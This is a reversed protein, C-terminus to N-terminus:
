DPGKSARHLNEAMREVTPADFILAVPLKHGLDQEIRALIRFASLSHGGLEFFDDRIGVPRVGLVEEWIRALRREMENRPAVPEMAQAQALTPAPLARHDMKGSSTLPLDDVLVFAAPIMYSPLQEELFRRLSMMDLAGPNQSTVYAVLGRGGPADDRITAFAQSIAPHKLLSAEIEAPEIRFGRIKVQRDARGVFEINGDSLYRGLDGTRYLRDGKAGTYPNTLFREATLAEDGLYGLALHSSRIYIEGLEGIGALKREKNLVLLQVGTMGRGLPYVAAQSEDRVQPVVYYGRSGKTETTGYTNICTVEPALRHLPAVDGPSLRDGVFVAGRLAPLHCDATETLIHSMAPTLQVFTIAQGALWQALRGPARIDEDGPIYLTAGLWVPLFLEQQLPSNALGFLLSFRDGATLQLVDECWPMFATLQGHCGLVGKPQGTSGSTFMVCALADPGIGVEPDQDSYGALLTDSEAALGQPLVLQVAFSQTELFEKLLDGPEDARELQLWGSPTAQSLQELLDPAPSAPDLILFAAGAKLVGLVAWALAASRHGYIAVVDQPQVGQAILYQALQNSRRELERYTWREQSDVVAVQEPSQRAHKTVRGHIPGHWETALMLTPDPLIERARATVLSFESLRQDPDTVIQELLYRFQALMEDIREGAFLDANYVADITIGDVRNQVYLNLDFHAALRILSLFEIRLGPLEIEMDSYNYMNFYTQFLPTRGRDRGPQLREVLREFPVQQHGFAELAVSRVRQLLERFSPNGSLDNRLVLLNVFFGILREFEPRNRDTAAVGVVVDDQRSYRSLLVNFAALLTVFLTVGERRSLAELAERLRGPMELSDIKPQFTQTLPRRYDVPLELVALDALQHRWYAMEKEAERSQLWQRQGTAFDAYQAPLEPLPSLQGKSFAGYIAALERYFLELSWGDCIIHHMNLLLVHTEQDLRVLHARLLPGGGLDFPQRALRGALRDLKVPGLDVRPLPISLSPAIVQFPRGDRTVFTTRLSEHRRVIENISQELTAPDLVGTFGLRVSVNYTSSEDQLQELFWLREQPLSLPYSRPQRLLALIEEKQGALLAQQEASLM